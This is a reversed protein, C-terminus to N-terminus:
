AAEQGNLYEDMAEQPTRYGLGSHLRTRNYRLEIWRAIDDRAKQRTPYATRHVLEVKLTGNVSESLANDYCIGTRGVSQKIGLERLAEAFTVTTYNSGRDSHFVAGEPLGTNRAAMEIADIILPTKYNDDMAWGVIKRTACDTVLALYLWGEWTPIYTIDGVMKQGPKEATFDRNVLDPIPGARGDQETLSHRWPRPQCPELGLERMLRRVTEDDVQDGGRVLVAHIRRYGYEENNAEFLAQIKLKLLERREASASQPRSRWDYYGSKSVALWECMQTITPAGAKDGALTACEADIFAYKGSV